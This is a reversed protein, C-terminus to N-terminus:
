CGRGLIQGAHPVKTPMLVVRQWWHPVLRVKEIAAMFRRKEPNKPPRAGTVVANNIAFM